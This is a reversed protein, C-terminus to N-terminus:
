RKAFDGVATTNASHVEYLEVTLDQERADRSLKVVGVTDFCGARPQGVGRPSGLTMSRKLGGMERTARRAFRTDNSLRDFGNRMSAFCVVGFNGNM